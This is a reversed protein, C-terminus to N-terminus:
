GHKGRPFRGRRYFWLIAVFPGLIVLERLV